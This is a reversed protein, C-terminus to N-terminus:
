DIKPLGKFKNKSAEKKPKNETNTVSKVGMKEQMLEFSTKKKKPELAERKNEKAVQTASMNSQRLLNANSSLFNNQFTEEKRLVDNIKDQQSEIDLDEEEIEEIKFINDELLVENVNEIDEIKKMIPARKRLGATLLDKKFEEPVKELIEDDVVSQFKRAIVSSSNSFRPDSCQKTIYYATSKYGNKEDPSSLEQFEKPLVRYEYTTEKNVMSHRSNNFNAGFIQSNRRGTIRYNTVKDKGIIKSYRLASDESAGSHVIFNSVTDLIGNLVDEGGGGKILQELSQASFTSFFMASRAKEVIGTIDDPDLIQTEDVYLGFPTKNGQAQKYASARSLDSMIISGMYKAFEPEENPNFQFLVIPADESVAIEFLNIHNPTEGKALWDSYNSLILTRCIISLGDLQEKLLSSRGSTLDNYLNQLEQLRRIDGSSTERLSLEKKYQEILDFLNAVELASVFQAIGGQDWPIRPLTARDVNELLYFIAQLISQTRGKYVESAGDWKRLNLMMDAKSTGTGTSLPDYSAQHECFPNKYTGVDGSTFHYFKRDNEKAWKSLFYAMDPGKKFDIVCIPYGALIDNRMLNLMTLTKGSGTGGTILTSKYAENYYRYVIHTKDYVKEDLLKVKDELVGMPAATYTNCEGKRCDAALKKKKIIEIPTEAYEFDKAWGHMERLEPYTKLQNARWYIFILGSIFGVIVGLFLYPILWSEPQKLVFVSFPHTMKVLVYWLISLIGILISTIAPKWKLLRFFVLYVIAGVVIAPLNFLALFILIIYFSAKSNEKQPLNNENIYDEM